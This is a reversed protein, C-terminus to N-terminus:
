KNHYLIICQLSAVVAPGTPLHRDLWVRTPICFQSKDKPLTPLHKPAGGARKPYFWTVGTKRNPMVHSGRRVFRNISAFSHRSSDRCLPRRHHHTCHPQCDFDLGKRLLFFGVWWKVDDEQAAGVPLAPPKPLRLPKQPGSQSPTPSYIGVTIGKHYGGLFTGM